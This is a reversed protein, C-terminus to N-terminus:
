EYDDLSHDVYPSGPEWKSVWLTKRQKIEGTENDTYKSTAINADTKDFVINRPCSEPKPVNNGDIDRFAVRMTETTGEKTTLTTLFQYFTKGEKTTRKKAFISIEMHRGVKEAIRNINCLPISDGMTENRGTM